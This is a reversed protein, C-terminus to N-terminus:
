IHVRLSGHTGGRRGRVVRGSREGACPDREEHETLEWCSQEHRGQREYSRPRCNRFAFAVRMAVLMRRNLMIVAMGMQM